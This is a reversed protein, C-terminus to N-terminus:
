SADALARVDMSRCNPCRVRVMRTKPLEFEAECDACRYGFTEEDAGPGSLARSLSGLIGM